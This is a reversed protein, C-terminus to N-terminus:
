PLRWQQWLNTPTPAVDERFNRTDVWWQFGSGPGYTDDDFLTLGDRQYDCPVIIRVTPEGSEASQNVGASHLLRPHWFVVDGANGTFEVPTVERLIADRELRFGERRADSIQGGFVTDWHAHLRSHSGPWVTFGGGHPRITDVLVMACLQAAQYDAHPGLRGRAPPRRPFICYIGRVRRVRRVPEGLFVGAMALMNPHNGIGDVLWAEAGIGNPGRSRMKWGGHAFLGVREADEPTWAAAADFWSEPVDRRLSAHPVNAWVHDVVRRLLNAETILRRKVIFGHTRFHAAEAASLTPGPVAGSPDAHLVPERIVVDDAVSQSTAHGTNYDM